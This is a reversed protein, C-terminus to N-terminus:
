SDFITVIHPHDLPEYMAHYVAACSGHGLEALIRYKGFQYLGGV